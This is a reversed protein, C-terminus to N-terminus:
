ESLGGSLQNRNQPNNSKTNISDLAYLAESIEMASVAKCERLSRIIGLYTLLQPVTFRSTSHKRPFEFGLERLANCTHYDMFGCTEPWTFMLVMSVLVPGMGQINCLADIRSTEDEMRIAQNLQGELDSSNMEMMLM